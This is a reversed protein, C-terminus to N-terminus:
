KKQWILCQNNAPMAIDESLNFGNKAALADVAEFDRLASGCGRSQLDQDFARNSASTYLGKYRFPGYVVLLAQESAVQKLGAFFAQVQSWQMIHLTNASYIVDYRQAALSKPLWHTQTVDLEIPKPLSKFGSADYQRANDFQANLGELYQTQDSSQWVLHPLNQAFYLAHQGTGSGVELVSKVNLLHPRLVELIPDKNRECAQSFPIQM